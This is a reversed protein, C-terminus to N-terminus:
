EIILIKGKESIQIGKTSNISRGILDFSKGEKNVHKIEAINTTNNPVLQVDKIIIDNNM